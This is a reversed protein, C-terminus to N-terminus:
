GRRVAETRRIWAHEVAVVFGLGSTGLGVLLVFSLILLYIHDVGGDKQASPRGIRGKRPIEAV